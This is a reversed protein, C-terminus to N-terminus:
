RPSTSAEAGPSLAPGDAACSMVPETPWFHRIAALLHEIDFPKLVVEAGLRALEAEGARVQQIAGTCVVVPLAAWEPDCRLQRLLEWGSGAGDELMHDLIVLDPKTQRIDALALADPRATVRYGEGELIDRLLVLIEPSDDGALIHRPPGATM